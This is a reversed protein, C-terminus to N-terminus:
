PCTIGRGVTVVPITNRVARKSRRVLSLKMGQPLPKAILHVRLVEIPNRNLGTQTSTFAGLEDIRDTADLGKQQNTYAGLPPSSDNYDIAALHTGTTTRTALATGKVTEAVTANAGGNMLPEDENIFRTASFTVELTGDTDNAVVTVSGPGLVNAANLAAAVNTATTALDGTDYNISATTKNSLGVNSLTFTGSAAGPFSITQIENVAYTVLSHDSFLVDAYAAFVGRKNNPATGAGRLDQGVFRLFFDQGQQITPTGTQVVGASNLVSLTFSALQVPAQGEGNLDNIVSLADAPSVYGDNNVDVFLRSGTEGEGGGQPLLHSGVSNLQDIIALADNPAVIGDANVDTPNNFNWYDSSLDAALLSRDELREARLGRRIQDKVASRRQNRLAARRDLRRALKM